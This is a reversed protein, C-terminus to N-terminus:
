EFRTVISFDTEASGGVNLTLVIKRYWWEYEKSTMWSPPCSEDFVVMGTDMYLSKLLFKKEISM